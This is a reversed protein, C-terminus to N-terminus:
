EYPYLTAEFSVEVATDVFNFEAPELYVGDISRSERATLKSTENFLVLKGDQLTAALEGTKRVVSEEESCETVTCYRYSVTATSSSSFMRVVAIGRDARPLPQFARGQIEGRQILFPSDREALLVPTNEGPLGTAPPLDDAACALLPLLTLLVVKRNM